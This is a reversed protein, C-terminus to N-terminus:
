RQMHFNSNTKAYKCSQCAMWPKDKFIGFFTYLHFISKVVDNALSFKAAYVTMNRLTVYM